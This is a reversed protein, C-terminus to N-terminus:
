EIIENILEVEKVEFAIGLKTLEEEWGLPLMFYDKVPISKCKTRWSSIFEVSQTLTIIREM